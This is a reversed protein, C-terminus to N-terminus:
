GKFIPAECRRFAKKRNSGELSAEKKSSRKEIGGRANIVVRPTGGESCEKFHRGALLRTPEGSVRALRPTPVSQMTCCVSYMAVRVSNLGRFSFSLKSLGGSVSIRPCARRIVARCQHISGQPHKVPLGIATTLVNCDFIIDEPLFAFPLQRAM